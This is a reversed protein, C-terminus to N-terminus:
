EVAKKLNSHNTIKISSRYFEILGEDRMRGMERSLATRSANLFDALDARNLPILFTTKGTCKYQELIYTAIKARLSKISLYDVKRNLLIAKESLIRLLNHILQQHASCSNPCDGIIKKTSIFTVTCEVNAVVTAPWTQRASFAIMEGFLNGPGLVTLVTRTGAVTEKLVSAEGSLLIGLGTFPENETAIYSHKNYSVIRPQFCGLMTQIADHDIGSFLPSRPLNEFLVSNM